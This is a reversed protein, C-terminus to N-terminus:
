RELAQRNFLRYTIQGAKKERYSEWNAPLDTLVAESEAEIYILANDALLNREELLICITPLLDKRFPPDLFVLDYRPENDTNRSDLWTLASMNIVEGNQSKLTNLNDRLQRTAETAQDIFTVSEAGRSLAELGLAGSGAFLDLCRAGPTVNQLWNFLTERVRDPTPRLGEIAPFPVRRSRWEGGIIRLMQRAEKPQSQSTRPPNRRPM